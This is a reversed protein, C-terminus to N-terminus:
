MIAAFPLISFLVGGVRPAAWFSITVGCILGSFSWLIFGLKEGCGVKVLELDRQLRSAVEGPGISEFDAM